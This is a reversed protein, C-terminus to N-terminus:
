PDELTLLDKLVLLGKGPMRPGVNKRTKLSSFVRSLDGTALLDRVSRRPGPSWISTKLPWFIRLFLGKIALLGKVPKGPGSSM